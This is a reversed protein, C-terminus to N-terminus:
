LWSRSVSSPTPDHSTSAWRLTIWRTPLAMRKSKLFTDINFFCFLVFEILWPYMKSLCEKHLSIIWFYNNDCAKPFYAAGFLHKSPLSIGGMISIHRIKMFRNSIPEKPKCCHKYFPFKVGYHWNICQCVQSTNRRPFTHWSGARRNSLYTAPRRTVSNWLDPSVVVNTKGYASIVRALM